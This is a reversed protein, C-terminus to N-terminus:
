STPAISELSQMADHKKENPINFTYHVFWFRELHLDKNWFVNFAIPLRHEPVLHEGMWANAYNQDGNTKNLPDGSGWKYLDYAWDAMSAPYGVLGGNFWFPYKPGLVNGSGLIATLDCVANFRSMDLYERIDSAWPMPVLDMDHVLIFDHGPCIRHAIWKVWTPRPAGTQPASPALEKTSPWERQFHVQVGLRDWYAKIRPEALRFYPNDATTGIAPVFAIM